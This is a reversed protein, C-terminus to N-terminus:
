VSDLDTPLEHEPLFCFRLPQDLGIARARDEFSKVLDWAAQQPMGRREAFERLNGARLVLRVVEVKEASTLDRNVERGEYFNLVM